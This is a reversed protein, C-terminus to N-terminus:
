VTTADIEIRATGSTQAAGNFVGDVDSANTSSPPLPDPMQEVEKLLVVEYAGDPPYAILNEDPNIASDFSGFSTGFTSDSPSEEWDIAIKINSHQHIKSTSTCGEEERVIAYVSAPM